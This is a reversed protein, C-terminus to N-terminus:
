EFVGHRRLCSSAGCYSIRELPAAALLKATLLSLGVTGVAVALTAANVLMGILGLAAFYGFALARSDVRQFRFVFRVSAYYAVAAGALFAVASAPLYHWGCRFVLWELVAVDFSSAVASAVGYRLLQRIIAPRSSQNRSVPM